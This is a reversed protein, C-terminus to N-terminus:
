RPAAPKRGVLYSLGSVVMGLGHALHFTPFVAVVRPLLRFSERRGRIAKFGFVLACLAYLGAVCALVIRAPSSFISAVGLGALTLVFVVPVMSRGSLVAGHKVIAALKWYGYRFYQKFVARFSGRPYYYSRIGSDLIVKGGGQRLRLNVDEVEVVNLDEDYGGIQELAHRPFAGLYNTDVEVREGEAYRRTWNHGGFPSGLACAVAREMPTRGITEFIGAANWAGTERVAEVCRRVYDAPYRTHADLRVVIDGVSHNICLNLGPSQFGRPNDIVTLKLGERGAAAELLEVTRDTSRGDAVVVEFPEDLDQAALDAVLGDVYEAENKVPIIVSVRPVSTEAGLHTEHDLM